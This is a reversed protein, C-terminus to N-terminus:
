FAKDGHQFGLFGSVAEASMRPKWEGREWRGFTGEDVGTLKAAQEISLGLERRKAAIQEALTTPEPFPDYGLFRFIAPYYRSLPKARGQEWLLYTWPNAALQIAAQQQTLGLTTRRKLM